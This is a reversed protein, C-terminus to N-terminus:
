RREGVPPGSLQRRGGLCPERGRRRRGLRRRLGLPLAPGLSAHAPRSPRRSSAGAHRQQRQRRLEGGGHYRDIVTRQLQRATSRQTPSGGQPGGVPLQCTTGDVACPLFPPGGALVYEALQYAHGARLANVWEKVQWARQIGYYNNRWAPWLVASAFAERAKALNAARDRALLMAAWGYGDARFADGSYADLSQAASAVQRLRADVHHDDREHRVATWHALAAGVRGRQWGSGMPNGLVSNVALLHDVALRYRDDGTLESAWSLTDLLNASPRGEDTDYTNAFFAAWEALPRTPWRRTAPSSTGSHWAM